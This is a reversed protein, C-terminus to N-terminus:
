QLEARGTVGAGEGAGLKAAFVSVLLAFGHAM